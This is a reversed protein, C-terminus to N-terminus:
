DVGRYSMAAEAISPLSPKLGGGLVQLGRQNHMHGVVTYLGCAWMYLTVKSKLCKQGKREQFGNVM